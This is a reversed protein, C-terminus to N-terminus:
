SDEKNSRRRAMAIWRMVTYDFATINLLYPLDTNENYTTDVEINIYEARALVSSMLPSM